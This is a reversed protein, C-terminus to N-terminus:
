PTEENFHKILPYCNESSRRYIIIILDSSISSFRKIMIEKKKVVIEHKFLYPHPFGSFWNIHSDFLSVPHMIEKPNM